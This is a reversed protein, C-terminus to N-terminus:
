TKLTARAAIAAEGAGSLRTGAGDGDGATAAGDSAGAVEDAGAGAAAAGGDTSVADRDGEGTDGEPLPFEYLYLPYKADPRDELRVWQVMTPKVGDPMRYLYCVVRLPKKGDVGFGGDVALKQLLPRVIRLGREILFLFLVTASSLDLELANGELVSANASVGAAEIAARAETVREPNIDIGVCKCGISSAAEVIVRGDGCGIDFLTDDKSAQIMRLGERVAQLPTSHLTKRPALM